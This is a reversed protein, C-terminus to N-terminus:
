GGMRKFFNRQWGLSLGHLPAATVNWGALLMADTYGKPTWATITGPDRQARLTLALQEVDRRTRLTQEYPAITDDPSLLGYRASLIAWPEGQAIAADSALRFTSGVYLERAPAAHDLKRRACAIVIM